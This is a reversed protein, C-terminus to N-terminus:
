ISNNWIFYYLKILELCKGFDKLEVLMKLFIICIIGIEVVEYLYFNYEWEKNIIFCMYKSICM